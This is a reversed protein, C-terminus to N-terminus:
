RCHSVISGCKRRCPRAPCLLSVRMTCRLELTHNCRGVCLRATSLASLKVLHSRSDRNQQPATSQRGFLGLKVLQSQSQHPQPLAVRELRLVSESYQQDPPSTDRLPLNSHSTLMLNGPHDLEMQLVSRPQSLHLPLSDSTFLVHAPHDLEMQSM